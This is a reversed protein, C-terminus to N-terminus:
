MLENDQITGKTTGLCYPLGLQEQHDAQVSWLSIGQVRLLSQPKKCVWSATDLM